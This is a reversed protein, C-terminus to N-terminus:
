VAAALRANPEDPCDDALALLEGPCVRLLSGCSRVSASRSGIGGDRRRRDDCRADEQVRDM